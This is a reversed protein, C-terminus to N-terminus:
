GRGGGEGVEKKASYLVQSTGYIGDGGKVVMVAGRRHAYWVSAVANGGWTFM